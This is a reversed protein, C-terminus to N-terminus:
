EVIIYSPRMMKRKEVVVVSDYVHIAGISNNASINTAKNHYWVHVDDILEKIFEIGTGRRRYGGENAGPLYSTHLDEIVYLGGERLFPFLENFSTRQCRGNHVGDDLIIDPVGIENIVSRLFRPDDQSGIRVQNPPSVCNACNPDIDIGFITAETGFYERWLELSGGKYVGIELMKVPTHRYRAFHSDYIDLYHIWKNIKRGHHAFFIKALESSADASLRTREGSDIEFARLDVSLPPLGSVRLGKNLTRSALDRITM